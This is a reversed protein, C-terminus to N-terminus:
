ISMFTQVFSYIAAATQARTVFSDPELLDGETGSLLRAGVAWKMAALCVSSVSGFDAYGSLDTGSLKKVDNGLQKAYNMLILALEQRTLADDPRFMGFSDAKVIGNKYAWLIANLGSSGGLDYFPNKVGSVAPSGSLRYLATVLMSRTMADEPGFTDSSTGILLGNSVCFDIAAHDDHAEPVDGFKKSPCYEGYMCGEKYQATVTVASNPMIIYYVGSASDYAVPADDSRWGVFCFGQRVEPTLYIKEGAEYKGGGGGGVVTLTFQTQASGSIWVADLYLNDSATDSGTMYRDYKESYWGRFKYGNKTVAPLAGYPKGKYYVAVKNGSALVGGAPDLIVSVFDTKGTGDYDGYLFIKAEEMRRIVLGALGGNSIVGFADAIELDPVPTGDSYKFNNRAYTSIRWGMTIWGTGCNYTFSVLADFKNQTLTLKYKTIYGNVANEYTKLDQAFMEEAKAQTIKQDKGVDPGYHGYGITYYTEGPLQYATLKCGEKSKIYDMIKSSAKMTGAAGASSLPLLAFLLLLTLLLSIYRKM